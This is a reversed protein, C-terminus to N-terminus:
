RVGTTLTTVVVTERSAEWTGAVKAESLKQKYAEWLTAFRDGAKLSPSLEAALRAVIAASLLSDFLGANDVQTDYGIYTIYATEENTLLAKGEIAWAATDVSMTLMLIYDTPLQYQYSYGFAPADALRALHARKVLCRWPWRLVADRVEPWKIRCLRAAESAETLSVITEQGLLILAANCLSVPASLPPTGTAPATYVDLADTGYGGSM